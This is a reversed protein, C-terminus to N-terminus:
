RKMVKRVAGWIISLIVLFATIYITYLWMDATKLWSPTNYIQSDSSLHKLLDGSGVSYSIILLVAILIAAGLSITARRPNTKFAKVLGAIAFFITTIITLGFLFYAWNLLLGTNEYVRHEGEVHFGGIYFAALVIISLIVTILSTWSSVARIKTVAM